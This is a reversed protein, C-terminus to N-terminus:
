FTVVVEVHDSLPCYKWRSPFVIIINELREILHVFGEANHCSCFLNFGNRKEHMGKPIKAGLAQYQDPNKLFNVFEM